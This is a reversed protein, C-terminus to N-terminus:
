PEPASSKRLALIPPLNSSQEYLELRTIRGIQVIMDAIRRAAM